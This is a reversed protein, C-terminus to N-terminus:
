IHKWANYREKHQRRSQPTSDTKRSEVVEMGDLVNHSTGLLQWVWGVGRRRPASVIAEACENSREVLRTTKKNKGEPVETNAIYLPPSSEHDKITSAWLLLGEVLTCRNQAIDTDTNWTVALSSYLSFCHFASLLLQRRVVTPGVNPGGMLQRFCILRM